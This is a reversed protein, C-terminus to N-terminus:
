DDNKSKNKNKLTNRIKQKQEESIVKGKHKSGIKRKTEESHKYTRGTNKPNGYKWGDSLYQQQDELKIYKIIDDKYMCKRGGNTNHNINKHTDHWVNKMKQKQEETRKSGVSVKMLAQRTKDDMKHGLMAKTQRESRIQKTSEYWAQYKSTHKSDSIKKGFSKRSEESWHEWIANRRGGSQINYCNNKGYIRIMEKIWYCEGKDLEEQTDYTQIILNSFNSKGYKKIAKSLISGSGIYQTDYKTRRAQGVYFKSNILNFTIYVYGIM